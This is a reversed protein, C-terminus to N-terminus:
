ALRARILATGPNLQDDNKRHDDKDYEGEALLNLAYDVVVQSDSPDPFTLMLKLLKDM